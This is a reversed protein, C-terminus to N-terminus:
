GAGYLIPTCLHHANILVLNDAHSRTWLYSILTSSVRYITINVLFSVFRSQSVLFWKNLWTLKVASFEKFWFTRDPGGAPAPRAPRAPIYVIVAAVQQVETATKDWILRASESTLSRVPKPASGESRARMTICVHAGECVLLYWRVMWHNSGVSRPTTTNNGSM